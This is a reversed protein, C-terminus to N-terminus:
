RQPANRTTEAVWTPLDKQFFTAISVIGTLPHRGFHELASKPLRASNFTAYQYACFLTITTTLLQLDSLGPLTISAIVLLGSLLCASKIDNKSIFQKNEQVELLPKYNLQGIMSLAVFGLLPYDFANISSIGATFLKYAVPLTGLPTLRSAIKNNTNARMLADMKLYDLNNFFKIWDEFAFDRLSITLEDMLVVLARASKQYAIRNEYNVRTIFDSINGILSEKQSETLNLNLMNAILTGCEKATHCQSAQSLRQM